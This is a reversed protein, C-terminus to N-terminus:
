NRGRVLRTLDDLETPRASSEPGGAGNAYPGRQVETDDPRSRFSVKPPFGHRIPGIGTGSRPNRADQGARKGREQDGEGGQGLFRGGGSGSGGGRDLEEAGFAEIDEDGDDDEREQDEVVDLFRLLPPAEEDPVHGAEVGDLLGDPTGGFHALRDQVHRADVVGGVDLGDVRHDDQVVHRLPHRLVVRRQDHRHPLGDHRRHGFFGHFRSVHGGTARIGVVRVVDAEQRVLLKGKRRRDVADHVALLRRGVDVEAGEKGLAQHRASVPMMVPAM